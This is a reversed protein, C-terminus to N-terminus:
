ILLQQIKQENLLENLLNSIVKPNDKNEEILKSYIKQKKKKKTTTYNHLYKYQDYYKNKCYRDRLSM